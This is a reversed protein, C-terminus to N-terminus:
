PKERWRVPDWYSLMLERRSERLEIESCRRVLGMGYRDELPRLAPAMAQLFSDVAIDKDDFFSDCLTEQSMPKACLRSAEVTFGTVSVPSSATLIERLVRSIVTYIQLRGFQPRQFEKVTSHLTGADHVLIKMRQFACGKQSLKANLRGATETLICDSLGDAAVSEDLNTEVTVKQAPYRSLVPTVDLGTIYSYLAKGNKGSIRTISQEGALEAESFTSLGLAELRTAKEADLSWLYRIALMRKVSELDSNWGDIYVFGPELGYGQVAGDKLAEAISWCLHKGVCFGAYISCGRAEHVSAIQELISVAGRPQVDCGCFDAFFSRGDHPEVVPSLSYCKDLFPELAARYRAEDFEFLNIEPCCIRAHRRTHRERVGALRANRSVDVIKNGRFVAAVDDCSTHSLCYLGEVIFYAKM